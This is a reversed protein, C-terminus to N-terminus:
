SKSSKHLTELSKRQDAPLKCVVARFKGNSERPVENVPELIVHILGMRDQLREVISNGAIHTYDPTPVFRVRIRDLSEQIIQAESVPLDAKFAPDLRGIRRGDTTYILDDIRGEISELWPLTRGCSCSPEHAPLSGSDGVRYRILPMDVNLLGSCVMDGTKGPPLPQDQKFIETIGIEPWLHLQGDECESATSVIEAMGYTESVPCHFAEAISERQYDYLPEANTIVVAMKLDNRNLRLVEQALSYLSSSYGLLYIIRFHVLADLYYPILDSALHYSSMYLQNLATNWVWFPPRRQEVPTVLQGGLIAWRDKRSVGHWQRIRAECIAYYERVTKRSWYLDLSKGTTGSTHEHFMLRTDCDESVFAKPNQHLPEKELIPWNELYEWSAKNGYKRRETWMERYYPIQNAARNLVFSLREEQWCRWQEETWYERVLAQQILQETESGYRWGRLYYGRISATFNRLFPPLNHYVKLWDVM